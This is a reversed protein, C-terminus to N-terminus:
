TLKEVIQSTSIEAKWVGDRQNTSGRKYDAKRKLPKKSQYLTGRHGMLKFGPIGIKDFTITKTGEDLVGTEPQMEVTEPQAPEGAPPNEDAKQILKPQVSPSAGQQVTHTLEHALLHKGSDSEPNYKGQNFYIDNGNTFAQSGLEQNMQVANSDNHVRVGSFDSGFGSEMESKTGSDLPSGGGKSANLQDEIGSADGAGSTSQKQVTEEEEKEQVEEDEKSQVEEDSQKQVVPKIDIANANGETSLATEPQQTTEPDLKSQVEENSQQQVEEKTQVEEDEKAQVEEEEAMQVEEDSQLQVGPTIPDVVPKQQIENETVSGAKDASLDTSTDQKQVDEEAQKQISPSSALFSTEQQKSKAVIQDAAKDAEVEYKDGPKGVNLKPQVFSSHGQNKAMANANNHHRPTFM